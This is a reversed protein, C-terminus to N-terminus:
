RPAWEPVGDGRYSTRIKRIDSAVVSQVRLMWLDPEGGRERLLTTLAPGLQGDFTHKLLWGRLYGMGDEFTYASRLGRAGDAEVTFTSNGVCPVDSHFSFTIQM